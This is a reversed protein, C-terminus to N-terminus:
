SELLKRLAANIREHAERDPDRGVKQRTALRVAKGWIMSRAVSESLGKVAALSTVDAKYRPDTLAEMEHGSPPRLVNEVDVGEDALAELQGSSPVMNGDFMYRAAGCRLGLKREIDRVSVGSASLAEKDLVGTGCEANPWIWSGLEWAYLCAQDLADLAEETERSPCVEIGSPLDTGAAVARRVGNIQEVTLPTGLSRGLAAQTLGFEAEGWVVLAKGGLSELRIIFAPAAPGPQLITIPWATVVVGRVSAILVIGKDKGDVTVTWVQGPKPAPVSGSKPLSQMRDLIRVDIM